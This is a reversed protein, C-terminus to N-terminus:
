SPGGGEDRFKELDEDAETLAVNEPSHVRETVHEACMWKDDEVKIVGGRHLRPPLM